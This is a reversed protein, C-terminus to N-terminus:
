KKDSEDMNDLPFLSDLTSDDSMPINAPEEDSLDIKMKAPKKGGGTDIALTKELEALEDKAKGSVMMRYAFFGLVVIILNAIGIGIYLLLNSKQEVPPAEEKPVSASSSAAASSKKVVPKVVYSFNDAHLIEDLKGGDLFEGAGHIDVSYDASETPSFSFEWHNDDVLALEKEVDKNISSKLTLTMQTKKLDVLKEDTTIKYSYTTKGDDATIKNKELVLVSERASLSHKFERKFTKGDIYLHVEYDGQKEFTDITQHYVGDSPTASTFNLEVNEETGNKAVIANADLLGLFDKNVITKGNEQFSYNVKLPEGSHLNNPLPEVILQLNSVVTIRSQPAIETKIKWQGVKPTDTTILDYKDTRYWNVGDQPNTASYEKGDPSVIVTKDVGAKRFILATFEKVSADVLFGNNELPLREAPVAQDFIKLFVGMLQEASVATTFVGDTAVSIKKLLDTDANSSLAITHVIYGASKLNPIIDTIIRQREQVNDVAAKSIDVVGDTLLIIHTKYDSSPAKQDFSVEDLAKGINTYLAISNIENAKPAAQKRWDADVVRHPMLMNVSNGFTWIGARSKDPLLRAILDVAPKRLNQPDTQKMSGSIDILVRVDSPLNKQLKSDSAKNIEKKSSEESTAVAKSVRERNLPDKNAVDKNSAEKNTAEKSVADDKKEVDASAASAAQHAEAASTQQADVHTEAHSTTAALLMPLIFGALFRISM